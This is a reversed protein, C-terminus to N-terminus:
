TSAPFGLLGRFKSGLKQISAESTQRLGGPTRVWGSGSLGGISGMVKAVTGAIDSSCVVPSKDFHPLNSLEWEEGCQGGKGKELVGACVSLWDRCNCLGNPSPRPRPPESFNGTVSEGLNALNPGEALLGTLGGSSAQGGARRWVAWDAHTPWLHLLGTWRHNGM